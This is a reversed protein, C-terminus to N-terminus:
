IRMLSVAFSVIFVTILLFVVVLLVRFWTQKLLEGFIRGGGYFMMTKEERAVIGCCPM